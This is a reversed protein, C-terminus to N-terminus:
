LRGAIPQSSLPLRVEFTTGVGERSEVSVEGGMAQTIHKVIALGLGTGGSQRSRARDTRYFREFVRAQDKLPIGIGTDEVSVIAYGGQCRWGVHVRGGAPTYKIANDILNNLITRLGEEDVHVLVGPDGDGGILQVQKSAALELFSQVCSAVMAGLPVEAFQFVERGSEIRALQLLDVILQHLRNAQEQIAEVCRVRFEADDWAGMRLTEAYAAISALPTKLEHSVNAVFERRLNELRYLESMDHIVVLITGPASGALPSARATLHRDPLGPAAFEMRQPQGTRNAQQVLQELEHCRTVEILLKGTAGAAAFGLMRGSAENALRLRGDSGVALVGEDMNQLIGSLLETRQHLVAHGQQTGQQLQSLAEAIRWLEESRGFASAVLPTGSLLRTAAHALQSIPRLQYWLAIGGALAIATAGGLWLWSDRLAAGAGLSGSPVVVLLVGVLEDDSTVPEGLIVQQSKGRRDVATYRAQTGVVRDIWVRYRLPFDEGQSDVLLNGSLDTLAVRVQFTSAAQELIGKLALRDSWSRGVRQVLFEGIRNLREDILRRTAYQEYAWQWIAAVALLSLVSVAYTLLIRGRLYRSVM